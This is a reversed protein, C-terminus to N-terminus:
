LEDVEILNKRKINFNMEEKSTNKKYAWNTSLEPDSLM